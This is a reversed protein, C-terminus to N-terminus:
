QRYRALLKEDVDMVNRINQRESVKEGYRKTFESDDDWGCYMAWDDNGGKVAIWYLTNGSGTMHLGDPSDPASGSEFIEGPEAEQFLIYTNM